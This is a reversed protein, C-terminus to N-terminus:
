LRLGKTRQCCPRSSDFGKTRRGSVIIQAEIGRVATKPANRIRASLLRWLLQDGVSHRLSLVQSGVTEMKQKACVAANYRPRRETMKDWRSAKM